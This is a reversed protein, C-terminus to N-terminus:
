HEPFEFVVKGSKITVVAAGKLKEGMLPSNKSKSKNIKEDYIYEKNADIYNKNNGDKKGESNGFILLFLINWTFCGRWLAEASIFM